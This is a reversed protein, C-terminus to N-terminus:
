TKINYELYTNGNQFKRVKSKGKRLPLHKKSLAIGIFDTVFVYMLLITVIGTYTWKSTDSIEVPLFNQFLLSTIESIFDDQFNNSFVLHLNCPM